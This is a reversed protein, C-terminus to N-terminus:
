HSRAPQGPAAGSPAANGLANLHPPQPTHAPSDFKMPQASKAKESAFMDAPVPQDIQRNSLELENRLALPDVSYIARVRRPLKDDAGIWIQLFVDTNAWAVIDTKVGGM